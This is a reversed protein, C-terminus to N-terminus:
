TPRMICRRPRRSRVRWRVCTVVATDNGCYMGSTLRADYHQRAFPPASRWVVPMAPKSTDPAFKSPVEMTPPFSDLRRPPGAHAHPTIEGLAVEPWRCPASGSIPTETLKISLSLTERAVHRVRRNSAVVLKGGELQAQNQPGSSKGVPPASRVQSLVPM